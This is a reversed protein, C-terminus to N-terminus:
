KELGQTYEIYIEQFTNKERGTLKEDLLVAVYVKSASCITMCRKLLDIYKEM